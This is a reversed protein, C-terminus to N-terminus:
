AEFKADGKESEFHRAKAEALHEANETEFEARHEPSDFKALLGAANGDIAFIFGPYAARLEAEFTKVRAVLDTTIEEVRETGIHEAGGVIFNFNMDILGNKAPDIIQLALVGSHITDCRDKLAVTKLLNTLSM